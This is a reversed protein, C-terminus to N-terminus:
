KTYEKFGVFEIQRAGIFLKYIVWYLYLSNHHHIQKGWNAAWHVICCGRM